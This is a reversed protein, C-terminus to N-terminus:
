RDGGTVVAPTQRVLEGPGLQRVTDREGLLDSIIKRAAALTGRLAEESMEREDLALATQAVYLGQVINDNIELARLQREKLDEFLKAGRMLPGYTRRLTWYYLGVSATLVDWAVSHWSSFAERVAVGTRVGVGFAPLVMHATHMGHHIACTLFIAATATGLRNTLLQREQVLPRLIALAIAVYSALLVFNAAAAVQWM